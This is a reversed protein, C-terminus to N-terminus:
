SLPAQGQRLGRAVLPWAEFVYGASGAPLLMRDRLMMSGPRDPVACIEAFDTRLDDTYEIGIVQGRGYVDTFSACEQWRDCEEVVAFVFGAEDRGRTSLEATNKQAAVMRHEGAAAVLLGAFALADEMELYGGSRIYSDLNDFEVVDFGKAACAKIAPLVLALNAGRKEATSTDILFEDPWSADALPQGDAGPVLLGAPWEAGPQTQFGNVYCINFM